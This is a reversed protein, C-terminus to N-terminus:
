RVTYTLQRGAASVTDHTTENVVLIITSDSCEVQVQEGPSLGRLTEEYYVREKYPAVGERDIYGMDHYHNNSWYGCLAGHGHCRSVIVSIDSPQTKETCSAFMAVMSWFIIAKKMYYLYAIGAVGPLM